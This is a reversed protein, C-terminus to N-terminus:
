FCCFFFLSHFLSLTHLHTHPIPRLLFSVDSGYLYVIILPFCDAPLGLLGGAVPAIVATALATTAAASPEKLAVILAAAGRQGGDEDDDDAYSALSQRLTVGDLDDLFKAFAVASAPLLLLVPAFRLHGRSIFLM